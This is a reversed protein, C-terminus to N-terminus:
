KKKKSRSVNHKNEKIRFKVLNTILQLPLSKGYPIQMTSKAGKYIAIQKGFVDDGKPVPYLGIHNKWAAFSVLFGDLKYAAMNYSILEEAKPAAKKITSRIEQLVDQVDEPFSSIYEDVTSFKTKIKIPM